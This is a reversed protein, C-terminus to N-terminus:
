QNNYYNMNKDLGLHWRGIFDIILYDDLNYTPEIVVEGKSNISGWKGDKKIGAFGYENQETADDYQYDIVVEGARNIFGYKGDKKSLFLTNSVLIDKASKEEFKLNYYKYEEGQRLKFYGKEENFEVLIGKQKTEFNGTIMNSNFQSDEVIYMDSAEEYVISEYQFPLKENKDSDIIGYKGDRKAIYIGIKAEELSEYTPEIKVEGALDMVGNKGDKTYIIGADQEKLIQNVEDFGQELVVEGTKRIVQKKGNQVVVYLENGYVKEIKEYKAELVQKGFHDLLGYQNNENKVIYGEKYDRGLNTIELYNAEIVIRGESDVLGYKGDKKILYVSEIGQITTIDEYEAPLLEKGEFDIIGYKENKQVKLVDNEYWLNNNEDKNSIAEVRNYDKLIEENKSNLVKTKYSGTSYDVDYTCLFVDSKSNPIIIMEQYSPEIVTNGLSDIVGWKNNKWIAFYSQSSIKGGFEDEKTLIGKIMFISMILVILAVIVAVVKKKNLKREEYRKGRSM